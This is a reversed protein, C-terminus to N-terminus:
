EFLRQPPRHDQCYDRCHHRKRWGRLFHGCRHIGSADRWACPATVLAMWKFRGGILWWCGAPWARPCWSIARWYWAKGPLQRKCPTISKTKNACPRGALNRWVTTASRRRPPPASTPQIAYVPAHTTMKAPSALRTKQKAGQMLESIM